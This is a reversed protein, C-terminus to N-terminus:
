GFLEPMFKKGLNERVKQIFWKYFLHAVVLFGSLTTLLSGLFVNYADVIEPLEAGAPLQPLPPLSPPFWLLAVAGSVVYVLLQMVWDPVEIKKKAFFEWVFRVVTVLASTIIGVLVLQNVTLDLGPIEPPTEGQAMVPLVFITLLLVAM